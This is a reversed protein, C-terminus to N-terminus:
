DSRRQRFGRAIIERDGAATETTRSRPPFKKARGVRRMVSGGGIEGCGAYVGWQGRREEKKRWQGGEAVELDEEGKLFTTSFAGSPSLECM